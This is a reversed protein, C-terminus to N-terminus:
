LDHLNKMLESEDIGFADAIDILVEFSPLIKNNMIRNIYSINKGIKTSLQQCSYNRENMLASLNEIFSERAKQHRKERREKAKENINEM